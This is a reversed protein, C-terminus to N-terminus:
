GRHARRQRGMHLEPADPAFSYTQDIETSVAAWLNGQAQSAQTVNDGNTAIGGEPCAAPPPSGVSLKAKGCEDGLPIPGAKQPAAMGEGYYRLVRSFLQGGFHIGSCASCDRSNLNKLGAWDFVALRNDSLGYYDLTGLM